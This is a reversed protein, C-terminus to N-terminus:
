VWYEKYQTVNTYWNQVLTVKTTSCEDNIKNINCNKTKTFYFLWEASSVRRRQPTRLCVTTARRSSRTWFIRFVCSTVLRKRFCCLAQWRLDHKVQSPRRVHGAKSRKLLGGFVGSKQQLFFLLSINLSSMIVHQRSSMNAHHRSSMNAHHCSSMNAHYGNSMNTSLHFM